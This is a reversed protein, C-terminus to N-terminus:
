GALIKRLTALNDSDKALEVNHDQRTKLERKLGDIHGDRERLAAEARSTDAKASELQKELSQIKTEQEDFAYKESELERIRRAAKEARDREQDREQGVQLLVGGQRDLEERLGPVKRAETDLERVRERAEDREKYAAALEDSLSTREESKENEAMM